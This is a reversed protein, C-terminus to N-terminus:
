RMRIFLSLLFMKYITKKKKKEFHSTKHTFILKFKFTILKIIIM